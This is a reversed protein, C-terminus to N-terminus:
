RKQDESQDLAELLDAAKAAAFRKAEENGAAAENAYRCIVALRDRWAAGLVNRTDPTGTAIARLDRLPIPQTTKPVQALDRSLKAAVSVIAHERVARQMSGLVKSAEETEAQNLLTPLASSASAIANRLVADDFGCWGGWNRLSSNSESALSECEAVDAALSLALGLARLRSANNEGGSSGGPKTVSGIAKKWAARERDILPLVEPAKKGLFQTLKEDQARLQAEGPLQLLDAVDAALNRLAALSRDRQKPDAVEKSLKLLGDTFPKADERAIPDGQTTPDEIAESARHLIRLLEINESYLNVAAMVGPDGSSTPKSLVRALADFMETQTGRALDGVSRFGPRLQRVVSKDDMLAARKAALKLWQELKSWGRTASPDDPMIEIAAFFTKELQKSPPDAPLAELQSFCRALLALRQLRALGIEATQEDVFETAARSLESMWRRYPAVLVRKERGIPWSAEIVIRNLARAGPRFAVWKEGLECRQQLPTFAAAQNGLPAFDPWNIPKAEPSEPWPWGSAADSTSDGAAQLVNAFTDRLARDFASSNAPPNAALLALDGALLRIDNDSLQQADLLTFVADRSHLLGTAGIVLFTGAIGQDEGAQLFSAAASLYAMKASAVASHDDKERLKELQERTESALKLAVAGSGAQPDSNTFNLRQATSTHALFGALM